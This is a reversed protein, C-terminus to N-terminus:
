NLNLLHTSHNLGGGCHTLIIANSNLCHNQVKMELLGRPIHVSCSLKSAKVEAPERVDIVIVSDNIDLLKKAQQPNICNIHQQADAIFKSAPQIM